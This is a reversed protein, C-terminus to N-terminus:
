IIDDMKEKITDKAKITEDKLAKIVTKPQSWVMKPKYLGLDENMIEQYRIEKKIKEEDSTKQRLWGDIGFSYGKKWFFRKLESEHEETKSKLKAPVDDCFDTIIKSVHDELLTRHAETYPVVKNRKYKRMVFEFVLAIVCCVAIAVCGYIVIGLFTPSEPDVLGTDVETGADGSVEITKTINKITQAM